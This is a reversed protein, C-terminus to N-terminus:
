GGVVRLKPYERADIAEGAAIRMRHRRAAEVADARDIGRYGDPFPELKTLAADFLRM